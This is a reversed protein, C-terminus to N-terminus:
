CCYWRVLHKRRDREKGGHRQGLMSERLRAQVRKLEGRLHVREVVSLVQHLHAFANGGKVFEIFNAIAVSWIPKRWAGRTLASTKCMLRSFPLAM